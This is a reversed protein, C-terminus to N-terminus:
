EEGENSSGTKLANAARGFWVQDEMTYNLCWEGSSPIVYVHQPSLFIVESCDFLTGVSMHLAVRSVDGFVIVRDEDGISYEALWGLM